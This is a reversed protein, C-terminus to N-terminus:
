SIIDIIVAQYQKRKSDDLQTLNNKFVQNQTGNFIHTKHGNRRFPELFSSTKFDTHKAWQTPVHIQGKDRGRRAISAVRALRAVFVFVQRKSGAEFLTMGFVCQVIASVAVASTGMSSAAESTLLSLETSMRHSAQRSSQAADYRELAKSIFERGFVM